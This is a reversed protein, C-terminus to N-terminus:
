LTIGTETAESNLQQDVIEAEEPTLDRTGDIYEIIEKNPTEMELRRKNFSIANRKIIIWM